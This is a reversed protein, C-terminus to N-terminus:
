RRRRTAVLGALGLLAAAGPTPVGIDPQNPNLVPLMVEGEITVFNTFQANVFNFAIDGSTRVYWTAVESGAAGGGGLDNGAGNYDFLWTDPGGLGGPQTSVLPAVENTTENDIQGQGTSLNGLGALDLEISSNVGYAIDELGSIGSNEVTIIFLVDTLGAGLSGTNGFVELTYDVDLDPGTINTTFTNGTFSAGVTPDATMNVPTFGGLVTARDPVNNNTVPAALAPASLAAVLGAVGANRLNTM